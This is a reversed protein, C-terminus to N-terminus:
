EEVRTTVSMLPPAQGNERVITFTLTDGDLRGSYHFVVAEGGVPRVSAFTVTDGEIMGDTITIDPNGGIGELVGTVSDGEQTLHATFPLLRGNPLEVDGSWTGTVDAASLAASTLLMVLACIGVMTRIYTM